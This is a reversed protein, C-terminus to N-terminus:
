SVHERVRELGCAELMSAMPSYLGSAEARGMLTKLKQMVPTALM